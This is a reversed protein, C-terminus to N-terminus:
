TASRAPQVRCPALNADVDARKVRILRRIKYAPLEGRDIVAYLTRLRMGLHKATAPGGMWERRTCPDAGVGGHAPAYAM